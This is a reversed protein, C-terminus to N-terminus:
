EQAHALAQNMEQVLMEGPGTGPAPRPLLSQFVGTCRVERGGRLMAVARGRIRDFEFREVEGAPLKHTWKINHIEVGTATITVGRRSWRVFILGFAAVVGLGVVIFAVVSAQGPKTTAESYGGVVMLVSLVCAVWIFPAVVRSGTRYRVAVHRASAALTTPEPAVV